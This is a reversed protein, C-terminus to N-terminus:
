PATTLYEYLLQFSHEDSEGPFKERLARYAPEIIVLERVRESTDTSVVGREEGACTLIAHSVTDTSLDGLLRELNSATPETLWVRVTGEPTMEGQVRFYYLHPDDAPPITFYPQIKTGSGGGTVSWVKQNTVTSYIWLNRNARRGGEGSVTREKWVARHKSPDLNESGEEFYLFESLSSEYVLWGSRLEVSKGKSIAKVQALRDDLVRQYGAIVERMAKMPDDINPLSVRRTLAPHMMSTGCLSKIPQTESCRMMKHELSLGPITVDAGLNSWGQRPLNRANTYVHGWDAEELKRGMMHAVRAALLLKARTLEDQTFVSLTM